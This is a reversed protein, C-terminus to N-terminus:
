EDEEGGKVHELLSGSAMTLLEQDGAKTIQNNINKTFQQAVHTPLILNVINKTNATQEPASQGRRKANNVVQLAKMITDPKIMLPVAKNLKILLRDELSDYEADRQNHEQLSEYRLAAVQDSFAKQSLLQSIRGATVGLAAATAESSVGSGLLSLAKDELSSTVGPSYHNSPTAPQTATQPVTTENM